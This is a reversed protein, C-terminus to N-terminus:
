RATQDAFQAPWRALWIPVASGVLPRGIMFGQGYEAGLSQVCSWIAPSEVGEATVHMGCSLGLEITRALFDYADPKSPGQRVVELALKLMTFPLDFLARHHTLDPGVDDIAVDYGIGRLREIARRLPVFDDVPRSETLEIVCRSAAVGAEERQADLREIAAPILLVDLSLNLAIALGTALVAPEDFARATITEALGPSLGADELIPVFVDAAITQAGRHRLRALVEVGIPVRDALRVVPQYRARIAQTQRFGLLEPASPDTPGQSMAAWARDAAAAIHVTHPHPARPLHPRDPGATGLVVLCADGESADATLAVLEEFLGGAAPPELLLCIRGRTATALRMLADDPSVAQELKAAGLSAAVDRAPAVWSAEQSLLVVRVAQTADPQAM